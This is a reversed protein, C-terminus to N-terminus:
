PSQRRTSTLHSGHGDDYERVLRVYGCVRAGPRVGHGGADPFHEALSRSGHGDVDARPTPVHDDVYALGAGDGYGRFLKLVFGPSSNERNQKSIIKGAGVGSGGLFHNWWGADM